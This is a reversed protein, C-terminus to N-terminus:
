RFPASCRSQERVNKAQLEDDLNTIVKNASSRLYVIPPKRMAQRLSMYDKEGIFFDLTKLGTTAETLM